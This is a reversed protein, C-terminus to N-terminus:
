SAIRALQHAAASRQATGFTAGPAAVNKTSVVVVDGGTGQLEFLRAAERLVLLAGEVNVRELRRFAELDMAAISSVHAVGANVVVLDVGGWERVAGDFGEAVSSPDTVDLPIGIARAGFEGRLEEELLDLADGALDTAVVHCGAELLARCVGSGIAGAAGTVVAVRGELPRASSATLKRGQAITYEM